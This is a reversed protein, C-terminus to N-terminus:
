TCWTQFTGELHSNPKFEWSITPTIGKVENKKFSTQTGENVSFTLLSLLLIQKRPGM